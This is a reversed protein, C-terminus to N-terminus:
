RSGVQQGANTPQRRPAWSTIPWDCHPVDDLSHAFTPLTSKIQRLLPTTPPLTYTQCFKMQREVEFAFCHDPLNKPM